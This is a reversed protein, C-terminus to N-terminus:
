KLFSFSYKQAPCHCPPHVFFAHMRSPLLSWVHHMYFFFHFDTISTAFELMSLQKCCCSDFVGYCDTDVGLLLFQLIINFSNTQSSCIFRDNYHNATPLTVYGRRGLYPFRSMLRIGLLSDHISPSRHLPTFSSDM